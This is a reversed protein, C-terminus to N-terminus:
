CAFVWAGKALQREAARQPVCGCRPRQPALAWLQATVALVKAAQAKLAHDPDFFLTAAHAM